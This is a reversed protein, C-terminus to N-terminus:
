EYAARIILIIFIILVINALLLVLTGFSITDGGKDDKKDQGPLNYQQNIEQEPLHVEIMDTDQADAFLFKTDRKPNSYRETAQEVSGERMEGDSWGAQSGCPHVWLDTNETNENLDYTATATITYRGSRLSTLDVRKQRSYESEDIFDNVSELDFLDRFITGTRGSGVVLKVDEEAWEGVNRLEITLTSFGDCNPDSLHFKDFVIKHEDRMVELDFVAEDDQVVGQSNRGSVKIELDYSEESRADGPIRLRLKVTKYNEARIDVKESFDITDTEDMGEIRVSVSADEITEDTDDDLTNRIRVRISLEDGPEVDIRGSNSSTVLLNEGGSTIEIRDLELNSSAAEAAAASFTLVALLLVMLIFTRISIM